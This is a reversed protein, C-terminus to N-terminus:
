KSNHSNKGSFSNEKTCDLNEDIEPEDWKHTFQKQYEMNKDFRPDDGQMFFTYLRNVIGKMLIKMENDSIHSVEHWSFENGDADIIKVDSYDGTKTIPAKGAHIHEIEANRVCMATLTKAFGACHKKDFLSMLFCLLYFYETIASNLCVLSNKM